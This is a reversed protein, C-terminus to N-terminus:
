LYSLADIIEKDAVLRHVESGPIQDSLHQAAALTLKAAIIKVNPERHKATNVRVTVVYVKVNYSQKETQGTM